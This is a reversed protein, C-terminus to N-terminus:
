PPRSANKRCDLMWRYVEVDNYAATWADHMLDEHCTFKVNRAGSHLLADYMIQSAKAPIIDDKAGHHIWISLHRLNSSESSDAGGCIPMSSAFRGPERIALDWVGYGGMSFGTLHIRDDDVRYRELVEDLLASLIPASWGYGHRMDLSPMLTVFNEALHTCTEIPVPEPSKDGQRSQKNKGKRAPMPVEIHPAVGDEREKLKDYCLIVKPIGHRISAYSEGPSRQSEGSGHLFLLLPWKRSTDHDYSPPLSIFHEYGFRTNSKRQDYFQFKIQTTRAFPHGPDKPVAEEAEVSAVKDPVGKPGRIARHFQHLSNPNM